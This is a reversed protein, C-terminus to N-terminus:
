LNISQRESIAEEIATELKENTKAWDNHEIARKQLKNGLKKCLASDNLYINICNALDNINRNKAILATKMHEILGFYDGMDYTIMPKGALASEFMGKGGIFQILIDCHNIIAAIKEQSMSNEFRVCDELGLDSVLAILNYKESGDGIILLCVDDRENKILQLSKIMDDVFKEPSLRCYSMIVKKGNM